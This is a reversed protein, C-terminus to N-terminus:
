PMTNTLTASNTSFGCRIVGASIGLMTHSRGRLSRKSTSRIIRSSSLGVLARLTPPSEAGILKGFSFRFNRSGPAIQSLQTVAVDLVSRLLVTILGIEVDWKPDPPSGVILRVVKHPGNPDDEFRVTNLNSTVCGEIRSRLDTIKDNAVHLKLIPGYLPHKRSPLEPLPKTEHKAVLRSLRHQNRAQKAAGEGQVHFGIFHKNAIFRVESRAM